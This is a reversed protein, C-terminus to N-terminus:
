KMQLYLYSYLLPDPYLECRLFIESLFYKIFRLLSIYFLFILMIINLADIVWFIDSFGLLYLIHVFIYYLSILLLNVIVLDKWLGSKKVLFYLCIVFSNLILFIFSIDLNSFFASFILYIAIYLLSGAIYYIYASFFDIFFDKIESSEPLLLSLWTNEINEDERNSTDMSHRYVFFCALLSFLIYLNAEIFLSGLFYWEFDPVRSFLFFIFFFSVWLLSLLAYM